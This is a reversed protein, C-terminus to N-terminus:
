TALYAGRVTLLMYMCRFSAASSHTICVDHVGALGNESNLKGAKHIGATTKAQM